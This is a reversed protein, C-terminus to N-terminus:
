DRRRFQIAAPDLWSCLSDGSPDSDLIMQILTYPLNSPIIVHFSHEAEDITKEYDSLASDIAYRQIVRGIWKVKSLTEIYEQVDKLTSALRSTLLEYLQLSYLSVCKELQQINEILSKPANGRKGEMRKKIDM